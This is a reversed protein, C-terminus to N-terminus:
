HNEQKLLEEYRNKWWFADYDYDNPDYGQVSKIEATLYDNVDAEMQCYIKFSETGYKKELMEAVKENYM